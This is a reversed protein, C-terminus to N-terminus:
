GSNVRVLRTNDRHIAYHLPTREDDDEDNYLDLDLDLVLRLFAAFRPVEAEKIRFDALAHIINNNNKGCSDYLSNYQTAFADRLETKDRTKDKVDDKSGSEKEGADNSEDFAWDFEGDRVEQFWTYYANDVEDPEVSAPPVAAEHDSTRTRRPGGGSDPELESAAANDWSDTHKVVLARNSEQREVM